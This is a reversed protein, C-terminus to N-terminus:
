EGTKEKQAQAIVKQAINVPIEEYGEIEMTFVGKGGTLSRLEQTYKLMEAMPVQAKIVQYSGDPNM